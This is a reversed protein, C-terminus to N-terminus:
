IRWDWSVKIEAVNAVVAKIINERNVSNGNESVNEGSGSVSHKYWHLRQCTDM